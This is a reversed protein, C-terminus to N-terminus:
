RGPGDGRDTCTTDAQTDESAVETGTGAPADAEDTDTEPTPMPTDPAPADPASAASSPEEATPEEPTRAESPADSTVRAFETPTQGCIPERDSGYRPVWTVQGDFTSRLFACGDSDVFARGDFGDPPMNVPDSGNTQAQVGSSLAAVSAAMLFQKM